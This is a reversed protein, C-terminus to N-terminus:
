IYKIMREALRSRGVENLHVGDSIYYYTPRNYKNFGMNSYNDVCELKYEYSVDKLAQCYDLLKKNVTNVETESDSTVNNSGDLTFRIVPTQIIVKLNPYNSILKEIAYRFAGKFTTIDKSNGNEIVVNGSYDNTGFAITVVDVKTFDITKLIDISSKFYYPLNPQNTIANYQGSFDKAVISDVLKPMCFYDWNAVDHNSMRCGGFGMNYLTHGTLNAIKGSVSTNDQTNGYISDGFNVVLKTPTKVYNLKIWSSKVAAGNRLTRRYTTNPQDLITIEQIKFDNYTGYVSVELHFSLGVVEAPINLFTNSGIGLYRGETLITDLDTNNGLDTKTLPNAVLKTNTVSGNKLEDTGILNILDGVYIKKWNGVWWGQRIMRRFTLTQSNVDIYTQLVYGDTLNEVLILGKNGADTPKNPLAVDTNYLGTNLVNNLDETTLTKKFSYNNGLKSGVVSSDAIKTTGVAGDAIVNNVPANGTISQIVEDALNVLKVKNGDASIDLETGKITVSKDRKLSLQTDTYTKDAKPTVANTIDTQTAKEALTSTISKGGILENGTPTGIYVDKTDTTLAIEGNALEPLRSQPGRRVQITEGM